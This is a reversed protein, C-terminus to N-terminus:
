NSFFIEKRVAPRVMSGIFFKNSFLEWSRSGSLSYMKEGKILIESNKKVLALHM